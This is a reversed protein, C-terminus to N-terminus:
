ADRVAGRLPQLQVPHEGDLAPERRGVQRDQQVDGRLDRQRALGGGAVGVLGAGVQQGAGAVRVERQGAPGAPEDDVGGGVAVGDAGPNQGGELLM